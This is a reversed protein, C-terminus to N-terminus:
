PAFRWRHYMMGTGFSASSDASFHQQLPRTLEDQNCARFRASSSILSDGNTLALISAALVGHINM